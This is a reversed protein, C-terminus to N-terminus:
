SWEITGPPKSTIDYVVRNVGEVENTIRDSVKHLFDPPFSFWDATMGDQSTVARLAISEDYSRKDGQVGVSKIPLLVAFAQWIKHYLGARMLEEMYICDSQRLKKLSSPSIEGIIRVALGPGPFPHAKLFADPIKLAKGLLRVEDKFLYRLPEVLQLFLGKPLGGVNHHSKITVGSGIPSVSEIVDPYLTGQVLYEIEPHHHVYEKFVDIFTHGIIKRKKEPNEIGKLAGLFKEEASIGTVNLHLKKTEALIKEFENQRLLGTDVFVCHVKKTSFLKTLLVAVVTSDVGGSLACLVHDTNKLQEKLRSEISKLMSQATWTKEKVGCIQEAFYSFIEKGYETHSVEPHFQLALINESALVAPIQQNTEALVSFGQPLKSVFDGHSMWVEQKKFAFPSPKKWQIQSKGYTRKQSSVVKGGWQHCILQLGYCIGMLPAEKSLGRLSRTPSDKSLVSAPGGSLIIGAPKLKKIEEEPFHFPEVQSYFGLDRLTRAILWTYQSGFDLILFSSRPGLHQNNM